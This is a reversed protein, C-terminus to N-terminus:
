VIGEHTAVDVLHAAVGKKTLFFLEIANTIDADSVHEATAPQIDYDLTQM